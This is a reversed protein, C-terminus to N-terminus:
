MTAMVIGATTGILDALVDRWDCLTMRLLLDIIVEKVIVAVFLTICFALIGNGILLTLTFAMLLCVLLHLYKDNGVSLFPRTLTNYINSM